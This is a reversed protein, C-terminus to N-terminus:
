KYAALLRALLGLRRDMNAPTECAYRMTRQVEQFARITLDREGTLDARKDAPAADIKASLDSITDSLGRQRRTLQEIRDIIQSRDDNTQDVIAGFLAPASKARQGAPLGEMYAKLKAQADEGSINRDTVDSVIAQIAQDDRWGTNAPIPPGSWYSGPELKPVLRQFCPWDPDAAPPQASAASISLLLAAIAIKTM